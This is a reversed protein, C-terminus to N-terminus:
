PKRGWFLTCTYFGYYDPDNILWEPSDPRCLRQFLAKDETNLGAEADKWRMDFLTEMARRTEGSLPALVEGAITCARIEELGARRLRVPIRMFHSNPDSGQTFPAIGAATAQLRAELRPHGPLLRESTWVLLALIGGPRIVRTLEQYVPPTNLEPSYGACCSSWVWDFTGDKFPIKTVNGRRFVVRDKLGAARVIEGAHALLEPSIDLGTIHGESGVAAALLLAQLGIGCGADLGRSDPKLRLIELAQKVIPKMLPQSETMLRITSEM